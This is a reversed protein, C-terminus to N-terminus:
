GIREPDFYEGNLLVEFHLHAGTSKGTNGVKGINQGRVVEDGKEVQIDETLSAYVTQINDREIIVFYGREAHYGTETVTGYIASKVDTGEPAKIDIGNHKMVAQTVPHVREGFANSIDGDCPWVFGQSLFATQEQGNVTFVFDFVSTKNRLGLGRNLMYDIYTYPVYTKDGVLIPTEKSLVLKMDAISKANLDTTPKEHLDVRVRVDQNNKVDIMDSGIKITYSVFEKEASERVTIHMTGNDWLLETGPIEFVGLKEFTERLPFYTMNDQIFPKSELTIIEGKSYLTIPEKTEEDSNLAAMVVTACVFTVAVFIAMIFSMMKSIRGSSSRIKTFRNQLQKKNASMKTTYINELM